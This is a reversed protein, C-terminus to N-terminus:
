HLLNYNNVGLNQSFAIVSNDSPLQNVFCGSLRAQYPLNLSSNEAVLTYSSIWKLLAVNTNPIFKSSFTASPIHSLYLAPSQAMTTLM